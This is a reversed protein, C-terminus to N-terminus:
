KWDHIASCREASCSGPVTHAAQKALDYIVLGGQFNAIFVVKMGDPSFKARLSVDSHSLTSEAKGDLSRISITGDSPPYSCDETGSGITLSKGDPSWEFDFVGSMIKFPKRSGVPLIWLALEPGRCDEEGDSSEPASETMTFAIHSGDPAYHAAWIVQDAHYIEERNGTDINVTELGGQIKADLTPHLIFKGDPSFSITEYWRGLNIPLAGSPPYSALFLNTSHNRFVLDYAVLQQNPSWALHEIRGEQIRALTVSQGSALSIVQLGTENAYAALNGDPSLAATRVHDALHQTHQGSPDTVYLRDFVSFLIRGSGIKDKDASVGPSPLAVIALFIYLLAKHFRM